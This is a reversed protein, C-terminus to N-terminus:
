LPHELGQARPPPREALAVCRPDVAGHAEVDPGVPRLLARQGDDRLDQRYARAPPGGRQALAPRRDLGGRLPPPPRPPGAGRTAPMTSAAPAERRMPRFLISSSSSPSDSTRRAARRARSAPSEGTTITSPWSASRRRASSAPRGHSQAM